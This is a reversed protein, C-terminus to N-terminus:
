PHCPNKPDPEEGIKIVDIDELGIPRDVEDVL